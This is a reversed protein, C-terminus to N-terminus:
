SEDYIMNVVAPFAAFAALSLLYAPFAIPDRSQLYGDFTMHRVALVVTLEFSVLLLLAVLGVVCASRITVLSFRKHVFRAAFFSITLMLPMEALEAVGEGTLPVVLLTRFTGLIFGATFVLAFYSISALAIARM